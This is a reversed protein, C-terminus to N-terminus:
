EHKLPTMKMLAFQTLDFLKPDPEVGPQLDYLETVLRAKTGDGSTGVSETRLVLGLELSICFSGVEHGSAQDKVPVISCSVGAVVDQGVANRRQESYM